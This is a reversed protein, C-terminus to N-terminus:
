ISAASVLRAVYAERLALTVAGPKGNGILKGDVEVVPLLLASAASVMAERAGFLEAPSFAREEVAINMSRAIELLCIRTVGPLVGKDVPHSVLVGRADIIHANASTGETIFGGEVLWADDVGAARAAEKMLVAYLLQTTKAGRMKWRMEDRLVIKLGTKVAPVDIVPAAQTFVIRTPSPPPIPSLFDRDGAAGGTIQLYVRGEEVGNRAVAEQFVVVWDTEDAIGAMRLSNDLRAMHYPYNALAAGIVPVVEYVSQGFLLGRDFVSIKADSEALWEGNIWVDRM